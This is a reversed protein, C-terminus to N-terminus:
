EERLLFFSCLHIHTVAILNSPCFSLCLLRLCIFIQVSKDGVSPDLRVTRLGVAFGLGHDIWWGDDESDRCREANFFLIFNTAPANHSRLNVLHWSCFM